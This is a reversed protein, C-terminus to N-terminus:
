GPQDGAREKAPSGRANGAASNGSEQDVSRMLPGLRGRVEEAMASCAALVLGALMRYRM